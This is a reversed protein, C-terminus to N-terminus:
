EIFLLRAYTGLLYVTYGNIITNLILPIITDPVNESLYYGM